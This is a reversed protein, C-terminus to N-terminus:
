TGIQPVYYKYLGREYGDRAMEDRQVRALLGDSWLQSLTKSLVGNGLDPLIEELEPNSLPREVTALQAVAEYVRGRKTGPEPLASIRVVAKPPPSPRMTVMTIGEEQAEALTAPNAAENLPTPPPTPGLLDLIHRQMRVRVSEDQLTEVEKLLEVTKRLEELTSQTM